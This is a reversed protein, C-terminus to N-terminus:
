DEAQAYQGLDVYSAGVNFRWINWDEGILDEM